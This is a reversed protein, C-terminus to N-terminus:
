LLSWFGYGCPNRKRALWGPLSLSLQASLALIPQATYLWLDDAHGGVRLERVIESPTDNWALGQAFGDLNQYSRGNLAVHSTRIVGRLGVLAKEDIQDRSLLEMDYGFDRLFCNLKWLARETCYLRGSFSTSESLKPELVVFQLILFPKQPHWVILLEIWAYQSCVM